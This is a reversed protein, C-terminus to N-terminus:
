PTFLVMNRPSIQSPHLMITIILCNIAKILPSFIKDARLVPYILLSLGNGFFALLINLTYWSDTTPASSQTWNQSNCKLLAKPLSNNKWLFNCSYSLSESSHCTLSSKLIWLINLRSPSSFGVTNLILNVTELYRFNDQLFSTLNIKYKSPVLGSHIISITPPLNPLLLSWSLAGLVAGLSMPLKQPALLCISAATVPCTSHQSPRSRAPTWWALYKRCDMAGNRPVCNGKCRASWEKQDVEMMM